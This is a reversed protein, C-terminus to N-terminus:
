ANLLALLRLVRNAQRTQRVTASDRLEELNALTNKIDTISRELADIDAVTELECEQARALEEEIRKHEDDQNM